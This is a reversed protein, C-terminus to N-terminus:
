RKYIYDKMWEEEEGEEGWPDIASDQGQRGTPANQAKWMLNDIYDKARSVDISDGVIVVNQCASHERPINVKVKYNNQIHRLESGAKGILYKYAWAEIEMEEHTQGPHTIEHYGYKRISELVDKAKRVDDAKGALTVKYKKNQQTANKPVEPITVEVHLESKFAKITVGQKGIIDPFSSPHMQVGEEKFDEFAMACYGKEVLEKIAMHAMEVAEQPGVITFIEGNTDINKVGTKEQILKIKSGKPGIVIGIKNEPVKITATHFNKNEAQEAEVGQRAEAGKAAVKAMFAAIEEKSAAKPPAMGPVTNTPVMGPILKQEKGRQAQEKKMQEQKEKRKQAQKTLGTSQEWEGGTGDDVEFPQVVEVREPRDDKEEKKAAGAKSKAAAKPASPKPEAKAKGKAKPPAPPEPAPPPPEVKAAAKAKAKPDAKAKAAEKPKPAEPAAKGKAKPQAKPEPKKPEEKPSAKPKAAAKAAEKPKAKPEAAAAKPAAKAKPKEPTTEPPSAAAEAAHEADRAKKAARRKASKSLEAETM